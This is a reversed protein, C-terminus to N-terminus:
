RRILRSIKRVQRIDLRPASETTEQECESCLNKLRHRKSIIQPVPTMEGDQFCRSCIVMNSLRNLLRYDVNTRTRSKM